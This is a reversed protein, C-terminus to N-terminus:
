LLRGDRLVSLRPSFATATTYKDGEVCLPPLTRRTSVGAHRCLTMTQANVVTLEMILPIRERNQAHTDTELTIALLSTTHQRCIDFRNMVFPQLM